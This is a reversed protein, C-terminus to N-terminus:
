YERYTPPNLDSEGETYTEHEELFPRGCNAVSHWSKYRHFFRGSAEGKMGAVPSREGPMPTEGVPVSCHACYRIPEAM